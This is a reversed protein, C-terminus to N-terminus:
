MVVLGCLLGVLGLILSVIGVPRPPRTSAVIGCCLAAVGAILRHIGLRHLLLGAPLGADARTRHIIEIMEPALHVKGDELGNADVLMELVANVQAERPCVRWHVHSYVGLVYVCFAALVLTATGYPWATRYWPYTM